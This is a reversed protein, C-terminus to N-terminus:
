DQYKALITEVDEPLINGYVDGNVTIVPALGCCGICRCSTISYKGDSTCEEANIGLQTTLRDLIENIGRVYCATGLCVAIDYKGKPTLTFQSYFTAIGYIEEMKVNMRKSLRMQVELPLYGYLQQAEQMAGMIGGEVTEYKDLIAELALAQEHTEHFPLTTISKKM